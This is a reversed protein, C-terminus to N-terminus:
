EAAAVQGRGMPFAIEDVIKRVAKVCTGCKAACGCAKYVEAPREAGNQAADRIKRDTLANCICIYMRVM